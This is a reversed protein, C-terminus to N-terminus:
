LRYILLFLLTYLTKPDPKPTCNEIVIYLLDCGLTPSILATVQNDNIHIYGNSHYTTNSVKLSTPYGNLANGPHMVGISM